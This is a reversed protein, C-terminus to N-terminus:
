EEDEAEVTGINTQVHIGDLALGVAARGIVEWAKVAVSADETVVSLSIVISPPEDPM